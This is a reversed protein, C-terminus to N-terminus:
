QRSPTSALPETQNAGLIRKTTLEQVFGIIRSRSTNVDRPVELTTDASTHSNLDATRWARVVNAHHLTEGANEGRQVKSQLGNEVLALHLVAGTSQNSLDFHIQVTDAALRKATLRINMLSPSQLASAISEAASKAQSGVFEAQGNVIMQPTYISRLKLAQAYNRQRQTFRPDAFRDPWGLEDWYDVHFTLCYVPAKSQAQDAVLKALLKDAPPCSSCGDSTFLEVVAVGPPDGAWSSRSNLGLGLTVALAMLCLITRLM